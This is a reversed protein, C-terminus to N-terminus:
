QQEMQEAFEILLGADHDGGVLAETFPGIHKTIGLHGRCKEVIQRVVAIDELRAVVAPVEFVPGSVVFPFGM